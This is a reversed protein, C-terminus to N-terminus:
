RGGSYAAREHNEKKLPVRARIVTGGPGSEIELRGGLQRLRERMGTIGVGLRRPAPECGDQGESGRMGHGTDSVELTIETAGKALRVTATSSGSHRHINILSEQLVRFLAMEVDKHLRGLDPPLEVRVEIESRRAFEDTYEEVAGAL